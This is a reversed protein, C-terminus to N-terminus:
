KELKLEEIKQNIAELLAKDIEFSFTGHHIHKEITHINMANAHDQGLLLLVSVFIWLHVNMM